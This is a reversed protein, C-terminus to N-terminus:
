KYEEAGGGEGTSMVGIKSLAIGRSALLHPPTGAGGHDACGQPGGAWGGAAHTVRTGVGGGM